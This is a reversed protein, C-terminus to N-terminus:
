LLMGRGAGMDLARWLLRMWAGPPIVALMLDSQLVLHAMKASISKILSPLGPGNRFITTQPMSGPPWERELVQREVGKTRWRVAM